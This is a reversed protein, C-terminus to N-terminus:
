GAPSTTTSGGGATPAPGTGPPTSSTSGPPSASKKELPDGEPDLLLGDIRAALADLFAPPLCGVNEPTLPAVRGGDEVDWAVLHAHVHRALVAKRDRGPNAKAMESRHADVEEWLAPRIRGTFEYDGATISFPRTTGPAILKIKV